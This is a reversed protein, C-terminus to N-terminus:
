ALWGALRLGKVLAATGGLVLLLTRGRIRNGPDRATLAGLVGTPKATVRVTGSSGVRTGEFDWSGDEQPAVALFDLFQIGLTAAVNAMREAVRRDDDSLSAEGSPHNHVLFFGHSPVASLLQVVERPHIISASLTGTSVHAIGLPRLRVDVPILFVHERAENALEPISSVLFQALERDSALTPRSRRKGTRRLCLSVDAWRFPGKTGCTVDRVLLPEDPKLSYETM